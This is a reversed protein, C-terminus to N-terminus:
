INLTVVQHVANKRDSQGDMEGARSSLVSGLGGLRWHAKDQQSDGAVMRQAHESRIELGDEVVEIGVNRGELSLWLPVAPESHRAPQLRAVARGARLLHHDTVELISVVQVLKRLSYAVPLPPRPPVRDDFVIRMQAQHMLSVHYGLILPLCDVDVM